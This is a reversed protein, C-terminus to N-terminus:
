LDAPARPVPLSVEVVPREAGPAMHLLPVWVGHDLGRRPEPVGEIRAASLLSLIERALAPDGAEGPSSVVGAREAPEIPDADGSRAITNEGM